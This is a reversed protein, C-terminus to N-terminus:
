QFYLDNIILKEGNMTIKYNNGSVLTQWSSQYKRSLPINNLNAMALPTYAELTKFMGLEPPSFSPIDFSNKGPYIYPKQRSNNSRYDLTLVEGTQNDVYVRTLGTICPPIYSFEGYRIRCADKTPGCFIQAGRCNGGSSYEKCIPRRKGSRIEENIIEGFNM